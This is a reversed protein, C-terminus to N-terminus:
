GIKFVTATARGNSQKGFSLTFTNNVALQAILIFVGAQSSKSSQEFLKTGTTSISTGSPLTANGGQGLVAAYIGATTAEFTSTSSSMCTSSYNQQSTWTSTSFKINNINNAMTEFTADSATTVGKDTIASAILSKGSSVSQFCSELNTNLEDIENQVTSKTGDERTYEIASAYNTSGSCVEGNIIMKAM